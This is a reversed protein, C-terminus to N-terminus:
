RTMGFLIKSLNMATKLLSYKHYASQIIRVLSVDYLKAHRWVFTHLKSKM